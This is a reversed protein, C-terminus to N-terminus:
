NRHDHTLRLQQSGHVHGPRSIASIESDGVINALEINKIRGARENLREGTRNRDCLGISGEAPSIRGRSGIEDSLQAPRGILKGQEGIIGSILHDSQSGGGRPYTEKKVVVGGRM